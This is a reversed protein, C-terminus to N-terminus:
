VRKLKLTDEDYFVAISDQSERGDHIHLVGKELSAYGQVPRPVDTPGIVYRVIQGDPHFEIEQRGRAPPLIKDAPRYVEVGNEDEEFSHKWRKLIQPPVM